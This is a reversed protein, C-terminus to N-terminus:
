IWTFILVDKFIILDYSYTLRSRFQARGTLRNKTTRHQAKWREWFWNFNKTWHKYGIKLMLDMKVVFNKKLSIKIRGKLKLYLLKLLGIMVLSIKMKLLSSFFNQVIVIAGDKRIKKLILCALLLTYSTKGNLSLVAVPKTHTTFKQM